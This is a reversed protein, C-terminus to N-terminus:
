VKENKETVPVNLRPGVFYDEEVSNANKLLDKLISGETVEDERVRLPSYFYDNKFSGYLFHMFIVWWDELVTFVPEIDATDVQLIQDAFAIADEVTKKNNEDIRGVLSVKELTFLTDEDLKTRPPLKQLDIKSKFPTPPVLRQLKKSSASYLRSIIKCYDHRLRNM